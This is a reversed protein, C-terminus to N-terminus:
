DLRLHGSAVESAVEGIPRDHSFAYARL